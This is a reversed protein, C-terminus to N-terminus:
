REHFEGGKAEDAKEEHAAAGVRRGVGFASFGKGLVKTLSDM